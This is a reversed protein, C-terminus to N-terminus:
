FFFKKGLPIIYFKFGEKSSSTPMKKISKQYGGLEDDWKLLGYSITLVKSFEPYLSSHKSFTVEENEEFKNQKLMKDMFLKALAPSEKTFEKFTKFPTITEIYLFLLSTLEKRSFM